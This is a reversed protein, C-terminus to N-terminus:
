QADHVRMEMRPLAPPRVWLVGAAIVMLVALLQTVTLAGGFVSGRGPDGRLFELFFRAVGYCFLWAGMVEGDRHRRAFFWLLVLCLVGEVASEFLQTPQLPIGLPVGTTRAAFRSTFIVGWPESTPRGYCCGAAFCGLRGIAHGLAIGPAAVDMTRLMPLRARRAYLVCCVFALVIGGLFVGGSRLLSTSLLAMPAARFSRWNDFILLLKSGLVAAVIGILGLNWVKDANLGARRALHVSLALGCLVGIGLLVGYTPIVLSGFQFLRPYM